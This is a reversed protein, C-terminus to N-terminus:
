ECLSSAANELLSSMNHGFIKKIHEVIHTHTSVDCQDIFNNVNWPKLTVRKTGGNKLINEQSSLDTRIGCLIKVRSNKKLRNKELSWSRRAIRHM